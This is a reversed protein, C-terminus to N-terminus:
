KKKFILDEFILIMVGIFVASDALNFAPWHYAAVHFDLFDAVAGNRIRDCLNGLAGGIILGLAWSIHLKENQYLWFFLILAISFQLLSLILHANAISNFMGFSVGRNWVYVLSFFNTVKIEPNEEAMKELIAFIVRKSLLDFFATVIAIAIGLFFLKKVKL